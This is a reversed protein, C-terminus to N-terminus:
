DPEHRPAPLHSTNRRTPPTIPFKACRSQDNRITIPWKPTYGAIRGFHIVELPGGNPLVSRAAADQEIRISSLAAVFLLLIAAVTQSMRCTIHV